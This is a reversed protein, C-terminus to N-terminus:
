PKACRPGRKALVEPPVKRGKLSASIKDKTAESMKRGTLTALMGAVSEPPRSKGKSPHGHTAYWSRLSTSRKVITDPSDRHGMRSLSIKTRTEDTVPGRRTWAERMKERTADTITPSDGGSTFNCGINGSKALTGLAAITESEWDLVACEISSAFETVRIRGYKESIGGHKANRRSKLGVRLKSGKGVYFPRGDLTYDVYGYFVKGNM